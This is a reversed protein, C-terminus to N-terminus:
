GTYRHEFWKYKMASITMFWGSPVTPKIHSIDLCDFCNVIATMHLLSTQFQFDYVVVYQVSYSFICVHHIFYHRFWNTGNSHGNKDSLHKCCIVIRLLLLWKMSVSLDYSVWSDYLVHLIVYFSCMLLYFSRIYISITVCVGHRRQSPSFLKSLLYHIQYFKMCYFTLM